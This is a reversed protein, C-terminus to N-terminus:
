VEVHMHLDPTLSWLELLEDQTDEQMSVTLSDGLRSVEARSIRGFSACKNRTQKSMQLRM